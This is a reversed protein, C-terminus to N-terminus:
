TDRQFRRNSEAAINRWWRVISGGSERYELAAKDANSEALRIALILDAEISDPDGSFQVVRQHLNLGKLFEDYDKKEVVMGGITFPNDGIRPYYYATLIGSSALINRKVKELVDIPGETDNRFMAKYRFKSKSLDAFTKERKRIAEQTRYAMDLGTSERPTESNRMPRRLREPADAGSRVQRIAEVIEYVKALANEAFELRRRADDRRGTWSQGVAVGFLTAAAGVATQLLPIYSIEDPM